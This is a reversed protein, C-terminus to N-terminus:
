RVILLPRAHRGGLGHRSPESVYIYYVGAAAHSGNSLLLNWRIPSATVVHWWVIRGTADTVNLVTGEALNEAAVDVYDHAPNPTIHLTVDVPTTGAVGVVTIDTTSPKGPICFTSGNHQMCRLARVIYSADGLTASTDTFLTSDAVRRGIMVYSPNIGRRRYIAYGDAGEVGTWSLEVNVPPRLTSILGEVFPVKYQFASLTPDGLLAIHVMADFQNFLQIGGNDSVYAPPIYSGLTSGVVSFNTQSIRTSHAMPMGFATHHFYWHPRGAWATTLLNPMSALASRLFNNKTDWDGFYSGFLMSFVSKVPKETFDTSSGIGGASTNSGGGCGYSWLYIDDGGLATFFDGAAVAGADAFPPVTRWGSTAFLEPMSAFNDDIVGKIKVDWQRNRYEHNKNLYKRLLETEGEEYIPLNYFDVRGIGFEVSGSFRSQDYKGDGPINMNSARTGEPSTASIDTYSGSLDAYVGDAPWAGLHDNAHGDPVILGSYLVPIRGFLLVAQLPDSIKSAAEESIIQRMREVLAPSFGEARPCQRVTVTWGEEELDRTLRSLESQLEMVQTSDVAVLVRGRPPLVVDHGACVYGSAVYVRYLPQGTASDTGVRARGTKFIRYEYPVGITVNVDTWETADVAPTATPTSSFSHAFMGKRFIQYQMVEGTSEWKLTISPAPKTQTTAHVLVALDRAKQAKLASATIALCALVITVTIRM